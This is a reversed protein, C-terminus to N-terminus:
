ESLRFGTFEYSQWLPDNDLLIQATCHRGAILPSFVGWFLGIDSDFLGVFHGM